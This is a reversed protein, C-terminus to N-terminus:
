VMARPGSPTHRFLLNNDDRAETAVLANNPHATTSALYRVPFHRARTLEASPSSTGVKSPSTSSIDMLEILTAKAM